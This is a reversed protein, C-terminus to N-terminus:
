RNYLILLPKLNGLLWEMMFPFFYIKFYDIDSNKLVFNDSIETVLTVFPHFIFM